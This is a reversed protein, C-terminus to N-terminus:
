NTAHEWVENLNLKFYIVDAALKRIRDRDEAMTLEIGRENEKHTFSEPKLQRLERRMLRELKRAEATIRKDMLEQRKAEVAAVRERGANDVTEIRGKMKEKQADLADQRTALKDYAKDAKRDRRRNISEFKSTGQKAAKRDYKDQAKDRKLELYMAKPSSALNKAQAVKRQFGTVFEAAGEKIDTRYIQFGTLIDHAEVERSAREPSIAGHEVGNEVQEFSDEEETSDRLEIDEASIRDLDAEHAARREEYSLEPRDTDDM